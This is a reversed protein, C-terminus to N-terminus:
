IKIIKNGITQISKDALMIHACLCLCLRFIFALWNLASCEYNWSLAVYMLQNAPQSAPLVAFVFM